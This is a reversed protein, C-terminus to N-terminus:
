SRSNARQFLPALAVSTEKYLAYKEAYYLTHPPIPNL